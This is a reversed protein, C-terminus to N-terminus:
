YALVLNYVLIYSFCFDKLCSGNEQVQEFKSIKSLQKFEIERFEDKLKKHGDYWGIKDIQSYKLIDIDFIPDEAHKYM